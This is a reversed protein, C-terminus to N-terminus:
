YIVAKLNYGTVQNGSNAVTMQETILLTNSITTDVSFTGGVSGFSGVVGGGSASSFYNCAMTATGGSGSTVVAYDIIEDFPQLGAAATGVSDECVTGGGLSAAFTITM